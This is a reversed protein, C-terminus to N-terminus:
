VCGCFVSDAIITFWRIIVYLVPVCDLCLPIFDILKM